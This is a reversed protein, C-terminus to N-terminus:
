DYLEGEKSTFVIIDDISAPESVVREGALDKTLILAEFGSSYRRLGMLKRQLSPTLEDPGGKVKRYSDEFEEKQGTYFIAGDKIYTIYDAARELDSTIHTSFLVSRKGDEIYGALIDMLEDRSVPDLGSTPEDLLLLRADHSFACSLMLKMQTGRSLEGVKKERSIGFKGLWDLFMERDWRSYFLAMAREVDLCDWKSPFYCSDFVVGVQEKVREEELVSDLGCMKATGGDKEIMNLILKITTTKGAGNPGIFGMIYGAPLSFGVDRLKFGTYEKSLGTVELLNEM